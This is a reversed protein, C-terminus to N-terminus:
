SKIETICNEANGCLGFGGSMLTMGDFADFLAEEASAVIKTDSM